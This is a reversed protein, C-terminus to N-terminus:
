FHNYYKFYFLIFLVQSINDDLSQMLYSVTSSLQNSDNNDKNYEQDKVEEQKNSYDSRFTEVMKEFEQESLIPFDFGRTPKPNDYFIEIKQMKNFLNAYEELFNQEM